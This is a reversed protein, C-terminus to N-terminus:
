HGPLTLGEYEPFEEFTLKKCGRRLGEFVEYAIKRASMLAITNQTSIGKENFCDESVKLGM